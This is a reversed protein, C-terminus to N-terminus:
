MIRKTLIKFLWKICCCPSVTAPIFWFFMNKDTAYDVTIFGSFSKPQEKVTLGDLLDTVKSLQRAHEVDGEKIYPTLYLPDGVDRFIVFYAISIAGEILDGIHIIYM